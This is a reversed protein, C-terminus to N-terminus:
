LSTTTSRLAFYMIIYAQPRRPILVNMTKAVSESVVAINEASRVFHYHLPREINTVVETEKFIKVIKGIVQKTPRNHLGYDGRLARDTVTATDDNKYYIKIFKIHQTTTLRDIKTM